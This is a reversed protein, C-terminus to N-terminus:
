LSKENFFIKLKNLIIKIDLNLAFVQLNDIM